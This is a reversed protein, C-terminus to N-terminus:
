ARYLDGRKWKKGKSAGHAADMEKVCDAVWDTRQERVVCELLDRLLANLSTHHECAYKRGDEILREDVALTLNKM